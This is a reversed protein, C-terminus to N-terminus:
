EQTGQIDNNESEIEKAKKLAIEHYRASEDVRVAETIQGLERLVSTAYFGSALEFSLELVDDSLWEWNLEPILLRTARREQKMGQKEIGESFIPNEHAVSKELELLKESALSEGRGWM